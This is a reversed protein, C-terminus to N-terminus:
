RKFESEQTMKNNMMSKEIINCQYLGDTSKASGKERGFSFMGEDLVELVGEELERM